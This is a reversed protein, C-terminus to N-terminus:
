WTPHVHLYINAWKNGEAFKVYSYFDSKKIPLDVLEITM